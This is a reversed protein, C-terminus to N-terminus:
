TQLAAIFRCETDLMESVPGEANASAPEKRKWEPHARVSEPPSHGDAQRDGARQQSDPEHNQSRAHSLVVFPQCSLMRSFSDERDPCCDQFRSDTRTEQLDTEPACDSPENTVLGKESGGWSPVPM